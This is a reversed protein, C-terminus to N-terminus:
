DSGILVFAAWYFPHRFAGRRLFDLEAQRLAAAKDAAKGRRLLNRHFDLMMEATGTSSVKWQSAVTTPVGSVFLAWTMGTLGEGASVRGRATECASLVVLDASLNLNMLERAELLGDDGTAANPSLLLYSYLPNADNFVSHTAFQVIKFNKSEAKARDERAEGAVYVRSREAGYLAALLKVEKEADPLPALAQEGRLVANKSQAEASATDFNPNGFALLTKENASKEDRKLAIKRMERLATLSPAYSLVYDELLFRNQATMLAQFPLNWLAADPVVVIKTKGNLQKLAPAFLLDYLQRAAAKYEDRAAISRRFGDTKATLEKQTVPIKYVGIEIPSKATRTKAKSIVFLYTAEDTVVYELLAKNSEKLLLDTIEAPVIMKAEGRQAQLEPHAAYLEARFAEYELRAKEMENELTKLRKADPQPTRARERLTQQNLLSIRANIDRERTKEVAPLSKGIEVPESSLIDLLARSKAREAYDLAGTFDVQEVLLKVSEHYPEIKNSFYNQTATGGALQSRRSEIIKIAADLSQRAKEPQKLQRYAAGEFNFNNWLLEESGIERAVAASRSAFDLAESPLRMKLKVNAISSLATASSEQAKTEETIKLQKEYYSLAQPFDNQELFVNGINNLSISVGNKNGLEERLALSKRNFELAATFDGFDQKVVALNSLALSAGYKNKAAEYLRLSQEYYEQARALNGLRRQVIGLNNLPNPMLDPRKAEELMKLAKMLFEQARNYEGMYSYGLGINNTSVAIGIQDKIAIKRELSRNFYEIATKFQGKEQYDVGVSNIAAAAGAKDDIREAFRWTFEDIEIAKDYVDEVRFRLGEALLAKRLDINQLDKNQELLANREDESKAAAIKQALLQPLTLQNQAFAGLVFCFLLLGFLLSRRFSKRFNLFAFKKM